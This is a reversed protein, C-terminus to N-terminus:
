SSHTLSSRETLVWLVLVLIISVLAAILLWLSIPLVVVVQTFIQAVVVSSSPLTKSSNWLSHISIASTASLSISASLQLSFIIM